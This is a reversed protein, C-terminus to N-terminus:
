PGGHGHGHGRHHGHGPTSIAVLIANVTAAGAQTGTVQVKDGTQVTPASVARERYRTSTSINVTVANGGATTLNFGTADLSAVTGSDNAMPVTVVLATIADTGAQVGSVRVTDGNLVNALSPPSQGPEFYRTNSTVGVAITTSTATLAGRRAPAPTLSFSYVAAPGVTGGAAQLPVDVLSATFTGTGDASGTVQVTDGNLVGSIGPSSQGPEIYHTNAAVQVDVTTATSTVAPSATTSTATSMAWPRALTVDFGAPTVGQATGRVTMHRPGHSHGRGWGPAGGVHHGAAVPTAGAAGVSGLPLAAALGAALGLSLVLRTVRWSLPGHQRRPRRAEPSHDLARTASM